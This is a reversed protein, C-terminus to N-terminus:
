NEVGEILEGQLHSPIRKIILKISVSPISPLSLIQVFITKFLFRYSVHCATIIYHLVALSVLDSITPPDTSPPDTSPDTPLDEIPEVPPPQSDGFALILALSVSMLILKSAM